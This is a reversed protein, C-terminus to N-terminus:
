VPGSRRVLPAGHHKHGCVHAQPRLVFSSADVLAALAADAIPALRRAGADGWEFRQRFATKEDFVAQAMM